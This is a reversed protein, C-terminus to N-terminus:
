CLEEENKTFTPMLEKPCPYPQDTFWKHKLADGASIRKEPNMHLLRSLLNFGEDSLSMGGGFSTVPFHTKLKSKTSMNQSIKGSLPLSKFGPWTEETPAGIIRFIKNIQDVEGEGMFLPKRLLLEAFICGISWMDVETSYTRKGLLLEPCRYWLTVVEFTYPKLPSGYKRALGFDCVALKKEKNSYLLNSTKLDRHIYWRQHMHDIAGLLQLMLRKVEAISFPTKSMDMCAKLDNELFEMVMYIKDVSSGVVM